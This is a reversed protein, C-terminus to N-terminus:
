NVTEFYAKFNEKGLTFFFYCEAFFSKALHLFFCEVFLRKASHRDEEGRQGAASTCHKWQSTGTGGPWDLAGGKSMSSCAPSTVALFFWRTRMGVSRRLGSGVLAVYSAGYM